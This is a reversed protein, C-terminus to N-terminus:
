GISIGCDICCDRAPFYTDSSCQSGTNTGLALDASVRSVKASLTCGKCTKRGNCAPTISMRANCVFVAFCSVDVNLYWMSYQLIVSTFSGFLGALHYVCVIGAVCM